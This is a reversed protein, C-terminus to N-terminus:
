DMQHKVTVTCTEEDITKYGLAVFYASPLKFM